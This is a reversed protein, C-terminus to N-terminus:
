SNLQVIKYNLVSAFSVWALYPFLLRGASESYRYCVVILVVISLWLFAVEILARDPRQLKFFLYSWLLNLIINVVFVAVILWRDSDTLANRWAYVAALATLGFILTWAPGFLWDPPQWSPKQLARYWPGIETIFAGAMGVLIAITLSVALQKILGPSSSFNM